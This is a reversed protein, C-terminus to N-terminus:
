RPNGAENLGGGASLRQLAAMGVLMLIPFVIGVLLGTRLGAQELGFGRSASWNQVIASNQSLDSVLGTLWPGLSCGLTGSIALIGFMATGGRPFRAASLSLIGPWMLSVSLGCLSAGLLSFFPLSSFVTLAYCAICLLCGARLAKTLNIAGGRMGYPTRGVVMFFAFLAPGVLDGVVKPVGLGMEAFLSSWQSMTLEAAGACIMLLLSLFFVPSRFLELISMEEGKPVLERMPVRMFQFLNYLPILAWFLPLYFWMQRGFVWLILTTIMVVAMQGWCYFSHLLSMSAAKAETPLSEVIPSIVVEMIGGGCALTLVSAALALTSNSVLRFLIGLGIIGLCSLSHAIIVSARYGIRDVFKLAALEVALQTTFNLLVLRGLMEFSLGFQDHFIVFFLPALNINIAQTVLGLYCARLTQKYKGPM